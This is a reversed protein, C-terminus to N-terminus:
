FLPLQNGTPNTMKRACTMAWMDDDLEVLAPHSANRGIKRRCSPLWLHPRGDPGGACEDGASLQNGGLCKQRCEFRFGDDIACLRKRRDGNRPRLQALPLAPEFFGFATASVCVSEPLDRIYKSCAM